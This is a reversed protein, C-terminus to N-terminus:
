IGLDWGDDTYVWHGGTAYPRFGGPVATPVWVYGYRQYNVWTGYPSLQDYFVQFSVSVQQAKTYLPTVSILGTTLFVLLIIFLKKM